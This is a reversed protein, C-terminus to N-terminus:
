LANARQCGRQTGFWVPQEMAFKLAAGAADKIFQEMQKAFAFQPQPRNFALGTGAGPSPTCLEQLASQQLPLRVGAATVQHQLSAVPMDPNGVAYSVKQAALLPIVRTSFSNACMAGQCARAQLLGDANPVSRTQLGTSAKTYEAARQTNSVILCCQHVAAHKPFEQPGLSRKRWAGITVADEHPWCHPMLLICTRAAREPVVPLRVQCADVRCEAFVVHRYEKRGAHATFAPSM